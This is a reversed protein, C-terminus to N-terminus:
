RGSRGGRAMWSLWGRRAARADYLAHHWPQGPKKHYAHAANEFSPVQLLPRLDHLSSALNPPLDAGLVQQLLFQDRWDDCALQVRQPLEAFFAHLRGQMEPRSLRDNVPADLLPLVTKIVFPSCQDRDYDTRELYIEQQGDESVLAISILQPARFDTFETDCFLLM